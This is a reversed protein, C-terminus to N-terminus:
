SEIKSVPYCLRLPINQLEFFGFQEYFVKAKEDKADVVVFATGTIQSIQKIMVLAHALLDRGIGKGQQTKDVAFRGILVCPIGTHPSHNKLKVPDYIQEIKDNSLTYFGWIQSGEHAVYIVAENRKTVQSALQQLFRNLTPNGCDFDQRNHSKDLKSIQLNIDGKSLPKWTTM